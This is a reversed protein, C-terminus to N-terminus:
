ITKKLSEIASGIAEVAATIDQSTTYRGLSFRITGVAIDRQVGMASLVHSVSVSRDHCAAGTSAMIGEAKDLIASGEFGPFSIYLTNPLTREPDGHRHFVAGLSSLGQFLQERLGTQRAAEEELDRVALSCAEGLGAALPVPETGPRRGYEQGAGFLLQGFPSGKRVYLAGIGKPAYFKHGAVSLYDVDLEAVDVPIKGVAQAADTHVLLNKEHAMRCVEKLPQIAGTENNALMVSILKTDPTMAKQLAELDVIGNSDVKVFDVDWGRELLHLCPNMLSPHEIQTTVIRRAHSSDDQALGLIVTNNSETGGSTFVIEEPQCNLLSAVQRRANELLDRARQGLIHGSSPNGWCEKLTYEIRQTVPEAVPTTANCDLYVTKM